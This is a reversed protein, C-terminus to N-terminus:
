FSRDYVLSDSSYCTDKVKDKSNNFSGHCYWGQGNKDQVYKVNPVEPLELIEINDKM